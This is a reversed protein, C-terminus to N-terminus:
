RFNRRCAMRIDFPVVGTPTIYFAYCETDGFLTDRVIDISIGSGLDDKEVRVFRNKPNPNEAVLQGPTKAQIVPARYWDVATAGIAFGCFVFFISKITM